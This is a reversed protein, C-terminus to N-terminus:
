KLLEFHIDFTNWLFLIFIISIIWAIIPRKYHVALLSFMCSDFILSWGMNWGHHYTIMGLQKSVYEISGFLISWSLIYIGYKKFTEKEPLNSLYIITLIPFSTFTKLLDISMRTPLVNKEFTHEFRWLPYDKFLFSYLLNGVIMFLVTPYYLLFNKWKAWKLSLLFFIIPYIIQM